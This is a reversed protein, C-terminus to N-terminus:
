LSSPDDGVLVYSFPPHNHCHLGEPSLHIWVLIVLSIEYSDLQAGGVALGGALFYPRILPNSLFLSPEHVGLDSRIIPPPM